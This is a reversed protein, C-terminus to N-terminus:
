QEEALWRRAVVSAPGPQWHREGIERVPWVGILSNVLLVEDARLLRELPIPEVRCAVRELLRERQVGAVGCRSLEPTAWTGDEVIFVNSMVGEIVNGEADLLLGEAIRPDSWESRALVNELRNLHKVGALRPQAGLRLDCVCVRVGSSAYEPPYELLSSLSVIRTPRVNAYAYGRGSVGRTVIIKAVGDPQPEALTLLERHLISQDPCTLGLAACDAALKRYHRQWHLPTGARVLLTRFVGDGYQLGRDNAAVSKSAMGNILM